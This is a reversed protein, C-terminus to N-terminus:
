CVYLAVSSEECEVSDLFMKFAEIMCETTDGDLGLLVMWEKDTREVVENIQCGMETLVVM